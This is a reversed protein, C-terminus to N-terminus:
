PVIFGVQLFQFDMDDAKAYSLNQKEYFEPPLGERPPVTPLPNSRGIYPLLEDEQEDFHIPEKMEEKSVRPFSETETTNTNGPFCEIMALAHTSVKGNPSSMDADFNDAIHQVLGEVAIPTKEDKRMQTYRAIASSRKYRRVEDNSCTVKYDFMHMILKKRHILVGLAIQLPTAHNRVVSTVINGILLAPLSNLDLSSSISQLLSVLTGSVFEAAVPKSMKRPYNQKDYVIEHLEAKIVKAIVAIATDIDDEEHDDERMKLTARANDKFMVIKHYGRASLVILDPLKESVTELLKARSIRKGVIEEYRNQLQASDWIKSRDSQMEDILQEIEASRAPGSENAAPLKTKGPPARNSFFRSFCDKHYRADSAHLDSPAGSIRLMVAEAWQDARVKCQKLIRDKTKIANGKEDVQHTEVETVLYAPAWRDPHRYDREIDCGEGCYICHERFSFAQGDSRRVRKRPRDDVCAPNSSSPACTLYTSVCHKHYYVQTAPDAELKEQLLEHLSDGYRLSADIIKRLRSGDPQSKSLQQSAPCKGLVSEFVCKDTM